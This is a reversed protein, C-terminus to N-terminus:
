IFDEPDKSKPDVASVKNVKWEDRFVIPGELLPDATEEMWSQLRMRMERLVEAYETDAVLNVKEFVDNSLDYLQEEDKMGSFLGERIYFDKSISRDMNSLNYAQNEQDFYRIYKYRKTRVCRVPEYSTHFNIEAFIQESLEAQPNNFLEAQSIGQCEKPIELGVLDFLTPLIDVQSFLAQTRQGMAPAGPVHMLLPVGIGADKLTCKAGPFALGHDSTIFIITEDFYASQKLGDLVRKIAENYYSLSRQHGALDERVDEVDILFGPVDINDPTSATTKGFAHEPYVRHTSFLGFSLFFAQDTDRSSLWDVIADANALDWNVLEEEELGENSTTLNHKYGIAEAGAAHNVYRGHEHQIGCLATEFGEKNLRRVIHHDYDSLKFGRNTLGIMGNSHPYRGTVLASRSPSCTPSASFAQDFVLADKAFADLVPTEVDYGYVSQYKGSDHSHIYIINKNMKRDRERAPNNM